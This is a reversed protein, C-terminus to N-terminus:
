GGAIQPGSKLRRGRIIKKAEGSEDGEQNAGPGSCEESVAQEPPGIPIDKKEIEILQSLTQTAGQLQEVRASCRVLNNRAVSLEHEMAKLQETLFSNTLQM